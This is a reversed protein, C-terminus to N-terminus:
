GPFTLRSAKSVDSLRSISPYFPNTLRGTRGCFYTLRRAKGEKQLHINLSCSTNAM